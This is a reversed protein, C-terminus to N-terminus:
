YRYFEDLRKAVLVPRQLEFIKELLHYQNGRAQVLEPDHPIPYAVYKDRCWLYEVSFEIKTVPVPITKDSYTRECYPHAERVPVPVEVAEQVSQGPKLMRYYPFDPHYVNMGPPIPIDRFTMALVSDAERLYTYPQAFIKDGINTRVCLYLPDSARNVVTWRLRLFTETQALDFGLTPLSTNM